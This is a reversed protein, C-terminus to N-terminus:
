SLKEKGPSKCLYVTGEGGIRAPRLKNFETPAKAFITRTKYFAEGRKKKM